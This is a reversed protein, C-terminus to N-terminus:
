RRTFMIGRVRGSDVSFGTVKQAADRRFRITLGAARFEDTPGEMRLVIPVPDTDRQLRVDNGNASITFMADLEESYYAGAYAQYAVATGSDPLRGLISGAVGSPVAAPVPATFRDKLVIDAVRRSLPTTAITSANCLLAVSTHQAPFRLLHARYGGLAGSHEVIPLGRYEGIQLGWAYAIPKGGNLSGPTQLKRLVEAGGVRGSYFNEDWKQLDPISTYLGGAGARENIPTDLTWQGARGGYALARHRVLRTADVHYHSVGMDLPKFIHADAFAAFAQGTAREVVSALLTYGTNSYLYEDGPTFNLASQRATMQLVVRNDWAVEDRRGAMALLTNYDRLGSTHHLLHSVKIADAYAPLEPLYKRIPDDYSLRGQQMAIAAGMATFQKSVSGAYFVSAPTIPVEHELSAMGYGKAYTTAGNEFVGMACGPSSRTDWAAFVGDVQLNSTRSQLDPTAALALSMAVIAAVCVSVRARM